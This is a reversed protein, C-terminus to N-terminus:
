VLDAGYRSIKRDKIESFIIEMSSKVVESLRDEFKIDLILERIQPGVCAGEKIKANSIRPSKNKAYMIWRQKSGSCPRFKTLGRQNHLLPFYYKEPNILPTNVVRTQGPILSEWKPWQTPDTINRGRGDWECLYCCFKTYGRQLGLLRDTVKLNGCINCNYKIYQIKELLLKMNEYSGKM